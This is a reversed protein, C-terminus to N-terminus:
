EATIVNYGHVFIIIFQAHMCAGCRRLHIVRVGVSASARFSHSPTNKVYPFVFQTCCLALLLGVIEIEGSQRGAWHSSKSVVVELLGLPKTRQCVWQQNHIFKKIGSFPITNAPALSFVKAAEQVVHRPFLYKLVNGQKRFISYRFTQHRWTRQHSVASHQLVNEVRLIVYTSNPCAMFFAPFNPPQWRFLCVCEM